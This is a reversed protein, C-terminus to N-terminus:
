AIRDIIQFLVNGDSDKFVRGAECGEEYREVVVTDMYGGRLNGIAAEGNQISDAIFFKMRQNPRGVVNILPQFIDTHRTLPLLRSWQDPDLGQRSSRFGNRATIFRLAIDPSLYVTYHNGGLLSAGTEIRYYFQYDTPEPLLSVIESDVVREHCPAFALAPSAQALFIPVVGFFLFKKTASM